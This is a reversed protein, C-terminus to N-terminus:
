PRVAYVAHVPTAAVRETRKLGAGALVEALRKGGALAGLATRGPKSLSHPVCLFTSMTFGLGAAPDTLAQALGDSAYPEVVAVMGGEALQERAHVAAAAPDGLDHLCDFFWVVDYPGGGFTAAEGVEFRVRNAVGTESARRRAAEISPAHTDFGVFRSNPFAQALLVTSVGQGCGVDAVQAGQRLVDELGLAPVWERVLSARYAAGFFRALGTYLREDHEGWDIGAGSQFAAAVADVDPFLAVVNEVGGAMSAPSDDFALVFAHEAPLAFRGSTADYILIGAAAQQASWEALYRGDCGTRAALEEPTAAGNGALDKYLGLRDALHTMLVTCAGTMFALMRQAFEDVANRDLQVDIDTM